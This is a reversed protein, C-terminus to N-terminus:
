TVLEPGAGPHQLAWARLFFRLELRAEREDQIFPLLVDCSEDDVPTAVCDGQALSDVLTPLLRPERIRVRM